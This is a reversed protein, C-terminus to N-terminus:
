GNGSSKKGRCQLSAVTERDYLRGDKEFHIMIFAYSLAGLGIIIGVLFGYIVMKVIFWLIEM